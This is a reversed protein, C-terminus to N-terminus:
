KRNNASVSRVTESIGIRLQVEPSERSSLRSVRFHNATERVHVVVPALRNAWFRAGGAFGFCRHVSWPTESIRFHGCAGKDSAAVGKM